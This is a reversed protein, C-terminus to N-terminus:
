QCCFRYTCCRGLIWISAPWTANAYNVLWLYGTSRAASVSSDRKNACDVMKITKKDNIHARKHCFQNVPVLCNIYLSVYALECWTIYKNAQSHGLDTKTRHESSNWNLQSEVKKDCIRTLVIITLTTANNNNQETVRKLFNTV